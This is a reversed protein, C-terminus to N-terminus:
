KHLILKNNRTVLLRYQVGDHTIVVTKAGQFLDESALERTSCHGVSDNLTQQAGSLKKEFGMM